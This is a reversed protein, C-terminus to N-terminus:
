IKTELIDLKLIPYTWWGQNIYVFVYTKKNKNKQSALVFFQNEPDGQVFPASNNYAYDELFPNSKYCKAPFDNGCYIRTKYLLIDFKNQLLLSTLEMYLEEPDSDKVKLFYMTKKGKLEENLKFDFRKLYSLDYYSDEIIEKHEISANKIEKVIELSSVSFSFFIFSLIFLFKKM